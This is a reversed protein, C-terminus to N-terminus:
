QRVGKQARLLYVANEFTTVRANNKVYKKCLAQAADACHWLMAVNEDCDTWWREKCRKRDVLVLIEGKTRHSDCIIAFGVPKM